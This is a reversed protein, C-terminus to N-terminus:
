DVLWPICMSPGMAEAVYTASSPRTPADIPPSARQETFAQHGTYPFELSALHPHALSCGWLLLPLPTAYTIEPLPLVLFPIVNSIYIFFIILFFNFLLVM